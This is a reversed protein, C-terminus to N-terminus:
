SIRGAICRAYTCPGLIVNRRMFEACSESCESSNWSAAREILHIESLQTQLHTYLSEWTQGERSRLECPSKNNRIKCYIYETMWNELQQFIDFIPKHFKKSKTNLGGVVSGRHWPWKSECPYGVLAYKPNNPCSVSVACLSPRELGFDEGINYWCLSLSMYFCTPAYSVFLLWMFLLTVYVICKHWESDPVDQASQAFSSLSLNSTPLSSIQM